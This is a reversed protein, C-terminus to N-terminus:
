GAQQQGVIAEMVKQSERRRPKLVHRYVQEFVRTGSHGFQQAVEEASVGSDGPV